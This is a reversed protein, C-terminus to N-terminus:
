FYRSTFRLKIETTIKQLHKMTLIMRSGYWSFLEGDVIKIFASPFYRQMNYSDETNSNYPESSLFVVDPKLSALEAGSLQPYRAGNKGLCNSLGANELISSIYTNGGAAM